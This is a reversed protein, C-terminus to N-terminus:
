IFLFLCCIYFFEYMSISLFNLLRPPSPSVIGYPILVDRIWCSMLTVYVWCVKIAQVVESDGDLITTDSVVSEQNELFVEKNAAFFDFLISFIAPKLVNWQLHEDKTVTIFDRGFFLSKVGSEKFLEKALPSKAVEKSEHRQIYIGTGKTTPLVEKGPLFKLSNANPTNETNVFLNRAWRRSSPKSYINALGLSRFVGSSLM